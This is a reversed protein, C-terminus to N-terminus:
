KGAMRYKSIWTFLWNIIFDAVDTGLGNLELVCYRTLLEDLFGKDVNFIHGASNNIDKLRNRCVSLYDKEKGFYKKNKINSDLYNELDLPTFYKKNNHLMNQRQLGKISDLLYGRSAHWLGFTEATIDVLANIWDDEDIEPCPPRSLSERFYKHKIVYVRKDMKLWHRYDYKEREIVLFPIGQKIHQYQLSYNMTTKGVGQGGVSTLGRTLDEKSFYYPKKM